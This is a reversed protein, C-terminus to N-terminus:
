AKISAVVRRIEVAPFLIAVCLPAEWVAELARLCPQGSREPVCRCHGPQLTRASGLHLSHFPVEGSRNGFSPM